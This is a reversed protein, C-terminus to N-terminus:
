NLKNHGLNRQASLCLLHQLSMVSCRRNHVIVASFDFKATGSWTAYGSKKKEKIKCSFRLKGCFSTLVYLLGFLVAPMPLILTIHEEALAVYPPINMSIKCNIHVNRIKLCFFPPRFQESRGSLEKMMPYEGESQNRKHLVFCHGRCDKCIAIHKNSYM